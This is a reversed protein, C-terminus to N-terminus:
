YDWYQQNNNMKANTVIRRTTPHFGITPQTKHCLILIKSYKPITPIANNNAITGM